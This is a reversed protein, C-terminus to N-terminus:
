GASEHRESTPAVRRRREPGSQMGSVIFWGVGLHVCIDGISIAQGVPERIAMVDALPALTTGAGALHHKAGGHAILDTITSSQGSDRLAGATVPMGHNAAIVLLNLSLGVVILLFGPARLNLSGFTVLLVFSVILAAFAADGNLPGLQLAIGAVALWGWRVPIAPFGAVSGGRALGVIFAVVITALILKM